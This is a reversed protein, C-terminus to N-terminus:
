SLHERITNDSNGLPFLRYNLTIIFYHNKMLMNKVVQGGLGFGEQTQAHVKVEAIRLSVVGLSHEVGDLGSSHNGDMSMFGRGLRHDADTPMELLIEIVLIADKRIGDVHCWAPINQIDGDALPM